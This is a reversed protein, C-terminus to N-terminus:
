CNIKKVIPQTSHKNSVIRVGEKGESICTSASDDYLLFSPVGFAAGLIFEIIREFRQSPMPLSIKWYSFSSLYKQVELEV